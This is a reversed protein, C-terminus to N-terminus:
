IILVKLIKCSFGACEIRRQGTKRCCRSYFYVITVYFYRLDIKSSVTFSGFSYHCGAIRLHRQAAHPAHFAVVQHFTHALQATILFGSFAAYPGTVVPALKTGVASIVAVVALIICGELATDIFHLVIFAALQVCTNGDVADVAVGAIRCAATIQAAGAYTNVGAPQAAFSM